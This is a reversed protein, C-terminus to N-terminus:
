NKGIMSFIDSHYVSGEKESRAVDERYLVRSRSLAFYAGFAHVAQFITVGIYENFSFLIIEIITVIVLKMKLPGSMSSCENFSFLIIEIITLIVLQTPSTKGLLAGYTILVAASAFDATLMSTIGIHVTGGHGHFFGGVLTAWQIVAAALFLNLGVASFGYRKLFTM